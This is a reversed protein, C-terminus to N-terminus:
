VTKQIIAENLLGAEKLTSESEALKKPPFGASLEFAVGPPTLTAVHARLQAVTHSQNAKVVQRSGDALRIQLTTTPAGEDVTLAAATTPPPPPAAGTEERMSRGSGGFPKAPPPKYPEGSRDILHVDTEEDNEETLESPTRGQNVDNLFAANEPDQADRLPGDDVSFGNQWFTITHQRVQEPQPAGETTAGNLSQGAGAFASSGSPQNARWEGETEAGLEDRAKKMLDRPDLVEQGSGGGNRGQGGAYFHQREEDDNEEKMDKLGKVNAM